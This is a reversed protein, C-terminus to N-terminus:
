SDDLLVVLTSNKSFMKITLTNLSSWRLNFKINTFQFVKPCVCYILIFFFGWSVINNLVDEVEGEEAVKSSKKLLADCFKALLEPSKASSTASVSNRNVYERCARDLSAQFGPENVFADTVLSSYKRQVSLLADVYIKPDVDSTSAGPKGKKKAASSPRKGAGEEDDGAGEEGDEAGGEGGANAGSAAVEAVKEVATLGQKRVHAEFSTRLMDLGNPIRVLLSYMRKLDDLKDQNLLHQFEDQIPGMHSKILVAESRQILKSRTSPHLFM